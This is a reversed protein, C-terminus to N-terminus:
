GWAKAIRALTDQRTAPDYVTGALDARRGPGSSWSTWAPSWRRPRAPTNRARCRTSCGRDLDTLEAGAAGEPSVIPGLRGTRLSAGHDPQPGRPLRAEEATKAAIM